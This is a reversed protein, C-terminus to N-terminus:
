TGGGAVGTLEELEDNTLETETRYPKGNITYTFM